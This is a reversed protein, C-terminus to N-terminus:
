KTWISFRKKPIKRKNSKIDLFNECKLIVISHDSQISPVDVTACTLLYSAIDVSSWVYDIRLTANHSQFTPYNVRL